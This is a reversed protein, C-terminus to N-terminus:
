LKGYASRVKERAWALPDRDPQSRSLGQAILNVAQAAPLGADRCQLAAWYAKRDRNGVFTGLRVFPLISYPVGQVMGPSPKSHPPSIPKVLYELGIDALSKFSPVLAISGMVWEYRMGTPHISPPAVVYGGEGRLDIGRTRDARNTPCEDLRVYVHRGHSTKVSPILWRTMDQDIWWDFADMSDFDVVTLGNSIRGTVVGINAPRSFWNVLEEKTPQRSQYVKWDILPRKDGPVLPIVSIGHSSYEAAEAVLNAQHARM